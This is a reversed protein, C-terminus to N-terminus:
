IRLQIDEYGYVDLKHMRQLGKTEIFIYQCFGKKVKYTFEKGRDGSEILCDSDPDTMVETDFKVKEISSVRAQCVSAGKTESTTEGCVNISPLVFRPDEYSIFGVSVMGEKNFASVMTPCDGNSEIENPSYNIMYKKKNLGVSPDTQTIERSCTRFSIYNIKADAEFYITYLPKKPLVIMGEAEYQPGSAKNSIWIDLKYNKNRDVKTQATTCSEAILLILLILILGKVM